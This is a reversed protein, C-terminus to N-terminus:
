DNSIKYIERLVTVITPELDFIPPPGKINPFTTEILKRIKELKKKNTM